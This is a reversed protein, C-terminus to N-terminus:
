FDGEVIGTCLEDFLAREEDTELMGWLKSKHNTWGSHTLVILPIHHLAWLYADLRDCLNFIRTEEETLDPLTLGMGALALAEMQELKQNIDPFAQKFPYSVDGGAVAEGLDHTIATRLLAASADPKMLLVLIAVRASHGDTRDATVSLNPHTHWRHTFGALWPVVQPNAKTM